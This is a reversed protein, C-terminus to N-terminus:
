FHKTVGEALAVLGGIIVVLLLLIALGRFAITFGSLGENYRARQGGNSTRMARQFPQRRVEGHSTILEDPRVGVTGPTSGAV